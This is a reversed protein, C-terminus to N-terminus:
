RAALELQELASFGAAREVVEGAALCRDERYRTAVLQVGTPIGDALGTPVALGPLGLLATALQPSQAALVARTREVDQADEDVPFPGRWSVPLLLVDHRALFLSWARAIAIRRALGALFADRDWEARGEMSLRLAVRVLEDGTEEIAPLVSRRLDDYVLQRWLEDAEEFHPPEAEEVTWGADGLWDAAQRLAEVVELDAEYSPHSAFLAVHTPANEDYELPGRVHLPDRPDHQALAELAARADSVTRALPGQVSMLQATIGREEVATANYAPVRGTTPRLGVVGCCYAPYRISGGYDNGHAVAGMGTAIAAGAGGSSGGPTVGPEFPNLTRGHLDNSTFWRLSFAPTNTRGVLVAGARKLNRAPPSDHEAVLDKLAVVGNTTAHGALDVNVKVTAPVGHLVGLGDGRAVAADAEDASALAEEDLVEALANLRPNVEAIRDLVSQTAERSSVERGAIRRALTMADFRWLEEGM